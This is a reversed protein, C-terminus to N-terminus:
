RTSYPEDPVLRSLFVAPAQGLMPEPRFASSTALLTSHRTGVILTKLPNRPTEISVCHRTAHLSNRKSAFAPSVFIAQRGNPQLSQLM